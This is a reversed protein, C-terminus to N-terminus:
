YSKDLDLFSHLSKLCLGSNPNENRWKSAKQTASSKGAVNVQDTSIPILRTITLILYPLQLSIAVM